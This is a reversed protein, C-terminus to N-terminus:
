LALFAYLCPYCLDYYVFHIGVIKLAVNNRHFFTTHTKDVIIGVIKTQVCIGVIRLISKQVIVAMGVQKNLM